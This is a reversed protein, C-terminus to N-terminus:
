ESAGDERRRGPRGGRAPTASGSADETPATKPPAPKAGAAPAGAKAVQGKEVADVEEMRAPLTAVVGRRVWDTLYSNGYLLEERLPPSTDGPQVYLVSGGRLDIRLPHKGTNKLRCAM